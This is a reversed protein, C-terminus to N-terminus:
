VEGRAGAAVVEGSGRRWGVGAGGDRAACARRWARGAEVGRGGRRGECRAGRRWGAAGGRAPEALAV